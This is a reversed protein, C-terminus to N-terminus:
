GFSAIVEIARDIDRVSTPIGVSARMAGVPISPGLCQAFKEISFGTESLLSFCRATESAVFGFAKEAAGPNCFCGGRVSVRAEMARSEVESFPIPSGDNKLLNFAVTAGRNEMTKPGYVVVLDGGDSRRLERLRDLMYEALQVVHRNVNEMGIEALMEFGDSLAAISLFAPTGDEFAGDASGRLLHTRNQVSVYDVTGGAFWPRKLTALKERRAVLAGVGTPYGLIKYGSFVVFDAASKTLSLRNTPMYAAADLIVDYGMSQAEGILGLSHKVGSLNSQAPYGFLGGSKGILRRLGPLPDDLRLDDDIPLYEVAAGRSWAYERMGNMSNHNDASLVLGCAPGFPYSEAVLKIAATTNATFCVAYETPSADLFELVQRRAKDIADTTARSPANESHPNGFVSKKLRNLHADIQRNSYLGSGTYDLYAEDAVDLRHYEADRLGVFFPDVTLM